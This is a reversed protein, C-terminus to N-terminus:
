PEAAVMVADHIVGLDLEDLARQCAVAPKFHSKDEAGDGLALRASVAIQVNGHLGRPRESRRLLHGQDAVEGLGRASQDVQDFTICCLSSAKRCESDIQIWPAM